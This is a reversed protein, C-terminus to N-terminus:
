NQLRPFLPPASKIKPGKFQKEIKEATEPLFPKLDFAIQKIEQVIEKLIDTKDKPNEWLKNKDIKGDLEAIKNWITQLAKDFRYKELASAVPESAIEKDSTKITLNVIECLKAVRAILNGLGNALDAQYAVEFKEYTFDSDEYPHIKALLYYRTADTGYKEVLDYPSIVNGLTKSMREGDSNIFGHIFIQKSTPLNASLLMAQWIASQQRLNDKGAIQFGPWFKEFGEKNEPWGLVSIYNVLADFWVYMVHDPDNPVPVGWPLKEKLRSISFDKLGGEVFTKIEKLRHKPLVFDPNKKYLELLRKQYKSFRFFYNEEEIIILSKGPHFECFGDILESNTKELECGVCYKAKYEKKYIDGNKDCLKWFAQAAKVHKPDTTRIFSDYNLNLAKKLNKFQKTYKDVYEQPKKGSEIAKQYIKLGHEDSGFNHFVNDGILRHYRALVDAQAIELAFGIHPAANVYPLTTTIYYKKTM